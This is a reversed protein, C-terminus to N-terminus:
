LPLPAHPLLARPHLVPYYLAEPPASRPRLKWHVRIKELPTMVIHTTGDGYPKKLSYVVKLLWM